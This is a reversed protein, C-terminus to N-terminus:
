HFDPGGLSTMVVVWFGSARVTDIGLANSLFECIKQRLDQAVPADYNSLVVVTYGNDRFIGFDSNVGSGSGGGGHGPVSRGNMMQHAFGYGYGPMLGKRSTITETMDKDLLKYGRLVRSFKLLDPATSYGGGCAKGRWGLLIQNPRRPEMAFPDDDYRLYGVALNPVAEDLAYSDTDSMGSPRFVNDCVYDLHNQGSIKEIVAGLVLFGENSYSSVTGPEFSLPRDAFVSLLEAHDRYKRRSDYRPWEWFMGMGATHSLLHAITVKALLRANFRRKKM